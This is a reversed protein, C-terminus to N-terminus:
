LFVTDCTDEFPGLNDFYLFSATHKQLSKAQILLAIGNSPRGYILAEQLMLVYCTLVYHFGKSPLTDVQCHASLSSTFTFNICGFILDVCCIRLLQIFMFVSSTGDHLNVLTQMMM